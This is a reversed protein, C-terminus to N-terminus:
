DRNGQAIRDGGLWRDAGDLRFLGQHTRSPPSVKGSIASNALRLGDDDFCARDRYEVRTVLKDVDRTITRYVVKAKADASEKKVVANAATAAEKKRQAEEAAKWEARVENAGWAKVKAIGIGVMGLIAIALVAYLILSGRQRGM